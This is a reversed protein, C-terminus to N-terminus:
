SPCGATIHRQKLHRCRASSRGGTSGVRLLFCSLSAACPTRGMDGGPHTVCAIFGPTQPFSNCWCTFGCCGEREGDDGAAQVLATLLTRPGGGEDGAPERAGFPSTM